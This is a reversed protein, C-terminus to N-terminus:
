TLPPSSPNNRGVLEFGKLTEYIKEWVAEINELIENNWFRLVRIDRANMYETRRADYEKQEENHQGGDAEIALRCVPCYFDLVFPGVNYQRFFKFGM